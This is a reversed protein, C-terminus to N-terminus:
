ISLGVQVCDGVVECLKLFIELYAYASNAKHLKTQGSKEPGPATILICAIYCKVPLRKLHRSSYYLLVKAYGFTEIRCEEKSVFDFMASKEATRSVHKMYVKQRCLFYSPFLKIFWLLM